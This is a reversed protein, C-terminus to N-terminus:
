IKFKKVMKGLKQAMEMQNQATLVVKEMSKTNENINNKIIEANGSSSQINEAMSQVAESLQNVTSNLQESFVAIQSSMKSTYDSDNYYYDGINQFNVFQTNIDEDVFRLIQSATNSLSGFAKQVKVITDQISSVAQSSQEALKRVEEAVVAFGKGQEGARAAEIAANLALLNTQEAISAVTDAMMIIDEVVKGDEIAKLINKEKEQYLKQVNEVASKGTIRMNDARQKFKDANRNGEDAKGSLENISADVEEISASIEESVAGSEQVTDAIGNVACNIDETESSINKIADFFNESEKSMSQSNKLIDKILGTLEMRMVSFSNALQGIEDKRNLLYDFSHDETLDFNSTKNVGKTLFLIPDGIKKGFYMSVMMAFLLSASIILTLWMVLKKLPKELEDKSVSLGVRWSCTNIKSTVFYKKRSDYDELLIINGKLVPSFHGNMVKYINKTTEATPKFNKNPHVMFNNKSDLLFAYSNNIPKAKDVTNIITDLKIDSSVVGIIQNNEIIPKSISVVMKKTLADVYPESYTLGRKEIASKYWIRQTCDFKNDPVWGSGDLYKKNRFGMYVALSYPNSKTKQQLYNLIKKDNSIGIQQIGDGIENLIKAQGDIWGNISEAYKDSQALIKNKSETMISNYFIFYSVGSSVLLSLICTILIILIIKGKITKM